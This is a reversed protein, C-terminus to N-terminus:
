YYGAVKPWWPFGISDLTDVGIDIDIDFIFDRISLFHPHPGPGTMPM